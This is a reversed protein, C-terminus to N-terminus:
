QAVRAGKLNSNSCSIGKCDGCGVTRIHFLQGNVSEWGWELPSIHDAIVVWEQLQLYVHKSHYSAAAPTPSLAHVQLFVTNQM